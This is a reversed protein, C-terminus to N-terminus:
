LKCSAARTIMNSTVENVNTAGLLGMTSRLEKGMISLVEEVGAAGNHALGWLVPRGICVARAGLAIAKAVDTGSRVGGDLYVECQAGGAGQVAPVVEALADLTAPAGDLQRGGHNSVLIGDVGHHVALEADEATVIGKLIIKMHTIERLWAIDKWSVSDDFLSQTYELLWSSEEAQGYTMEPRVGAFNRLSLGPPMEFRNRADARRNGLYPTDVTVCLGQFGSGEARKVLNKTIERDKYIYLQFWLAGHGTSWNHFEHAVDELSTTSLTSLIMITGKKSAARATDLEGRPSAMRQMASPALCIPLRITTGLIKTSLDINSVDRLVRPRFRYRLFADENDRLTSESDAGSRYYDWAKSGIKESARSELDKVCTISASTAM